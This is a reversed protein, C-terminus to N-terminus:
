KYTSQATAPAWWGVSDLFVLLDVSSYDPKLDNLLTICESKWCSTFDWSIQPIGQDIIVNKTQQCCPYRSTYLHSAMMMKGYLTTGENGEWSPQFSALLVEFSSHPHGQPNCYSLFIIISCFIQIFAPRSHLYVKPLGQVILEVDSESCCGRRSRCLSTVCDPM